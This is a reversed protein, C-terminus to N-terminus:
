DKGANLKVVRINRKVKQMQVASKVNLKEAIAVNLDALSKM